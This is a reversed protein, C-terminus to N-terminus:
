FSCLARPPTRRQTERLSTTLLRRQSIHPAQLCWQSARVNKTGVLAKAGKKEKRLQKVKAADKRKKMAAANQEEKM